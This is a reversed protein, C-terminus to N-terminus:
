FLALRRAQAGIIRFCLLGVVSKPTDFDSKSIENSKTLSVYSFCVGGRGVESDVSYAPLTCTITVSGAEKKYSMWTM